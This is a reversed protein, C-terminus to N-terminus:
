HFRELFESYVEQEAGFLLCVCNTFMTSCKSGSIERLLQYLGFSFSFSLSHQLQVRWTTLFM